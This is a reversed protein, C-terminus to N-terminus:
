DMIDNLDIPNPGKYKKIGKFSPISLNLLRKILLHNSETITKINELKADLLKMEDISRKVYNITILTSVIFIYLCGSVLLHGNIYVYGAIIGVTTYYLWILVKNKM